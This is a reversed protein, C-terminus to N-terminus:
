GDKIKDNFAYNKIDDYNVKMDSKEYDPPNQTPDYGLISLMPAINPMDIVVDQPIKGVWKSLAELNIAKVVQDTSREM